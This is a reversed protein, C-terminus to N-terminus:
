SPFYERESAISPSSVSSPFLSYERYGEKFQWAEMKRDKLLFVQIDSSHLL